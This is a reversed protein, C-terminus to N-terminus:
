RSTWRMSSEHLSVDRGFIGEDRRRGLYFLGAFSRISNPLGATKLDKERRETGLLHYRTIWDPLDEPERNMRRVAKGIVLILPM